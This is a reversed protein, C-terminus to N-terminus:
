RKLVFLILFNGAIKYIILIKLTEGLKLINKLKGQTKPNQLDPKSKPKPMMMREPKPRTHGFLDPERTCSLADSLISVHRIVRFYKKGILCM